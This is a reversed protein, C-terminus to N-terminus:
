KYFEIFFFAPLGFADRGVAKIIYEGFAVVARGWGDRYCRRRRRGGDTRTTDTTSQFKRILLFIYDTTADVIPPCLAIEILGFIARSPVTPLVPRARIPVVSLERHTTNNYTHSIHSTPTRVNLLIFLRGRDAAAKIESIDTKM